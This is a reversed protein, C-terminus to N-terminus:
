YSAKHLHHRLTEWTIIGLIKETTTFIYVAGNRNVELLSYVEALTAQFNVGQMPIFNLRIAEDDKGKDYEVLSYTVTGQIDVSHQVIASHHEKDLISILQENKNNDRNEESGDDNKNLLEFEKNMVALVGTKQLSEM